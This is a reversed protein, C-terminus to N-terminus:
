LIAFARVPSAETRALKLPMGFFLARRGVLFRLNHSLNEFIVIDNELLKKHVENEHSELEDVSMSDIGVAKVREDILWEATAIDLFSWGRKGTRSARLGDFNTFFLAIEGSRM